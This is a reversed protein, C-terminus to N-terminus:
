SISSHDGQRKMVCSSSSQFAATQSMGCLLCVPNRRSEKAIIDSRERM